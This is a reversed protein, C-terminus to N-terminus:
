RRTPVLQASRASSAATTPSTATATAPAKGRRLDRGPAAAAAGAVQWQNIAYYSIGALGVKGSSWPQARPGSSASTSTAPRARRSSTSTAPRAAPAARTSACACTATPCGNRRTSSKGTRTAPQDLRRRRRSARAGHHGLRDPYGDQFPLGKAYPGYTLIVPYRGDAVPRFVDARLVLGDDMAIPVDWDVVMGDRTETTGRREVHAGPRDTVQDM